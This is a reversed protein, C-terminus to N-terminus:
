YFLTSYDSKWHSLVSQTDSSINGQENILEMPIELKRENQM